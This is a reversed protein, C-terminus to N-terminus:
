MKLEDWCVYKIIIIIIKILFYHIRGYMGERKPGHKQFSTECGGTGGSVPASRDEVTGASKLHSAPAGPQHKPLLLTPKILCSCHQSGCVSPFSVGGSSHTFGPADSYSSTIRFPPTAGGRWSSMNSRRCGRRPWRPVLVCHCSYSLSPERWIWAAQVTHLHRTFPGWSRAATPRCDTQVRSPIRTHKERNTRQQVHIVRPIM